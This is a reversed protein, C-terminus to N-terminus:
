GAGWFKEFSALLAPAPSGAGAGHQLVKLAKPSSLPARWPRISTMAEYIDLLKLLRAWPHIAQDPLGLPYGAGDDGEHHQVTMFFIEEPLEGFSNLLQVGQLPHAKIQEQEGATLPETKAWLERPLSAMGIDHLLAGLGFVAVETAPWGLHQGFALSMVFVNVAHSFVGSDHRRVAQAIEQPHGAAQLLALLRASLNIALHVQEPTRSEAEGFYAHQTWVLALDYFFHARDLLSAEESMPCAELRSYLYRLLAGAEGLDFYGWAAPDRSDVVPAFTRGRPQFSPEGGPSGKFFITCPLAQGPEFLRLPVPYLNRPKAVVECQGDKIVPLALIQAM